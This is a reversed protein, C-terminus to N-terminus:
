SKFPNKDPDMWVNRWLYYETPHHRLGMVAPNNPIWIDQWWAIGISGRTQQITELDKMIQKRAEVDLTGQAAQLKTSFEPDVWRSENWPVPKGTADAVYALPLLMVALPRHTWPTVGVTTETWLNWYDSNPMTKLTINIGAAAADQKLTTIYSVIDTWGTGVAIEVDLSTKGAKTLLAKAGTPDYKPPDMPFYEPQTPAVHFDAGLQGSSFYATDLIKQRDQVM